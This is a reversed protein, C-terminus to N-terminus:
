CRCSSSADSDVMGPRDKLRLNQDNAPLPTKSRRSGYPARGIQSIEAPFGSVTEATRLHKNENCDISSSANGNGPTLRGQKDRWVGRGMQRPRRTQRGNTKPNWAQRRTRTTTTIGRIGLGGRGDYPVEWIFAKGGEKIVTEGTFIRGERCVLPKPHKKTAQKPMKRGETKGEKWKGREM